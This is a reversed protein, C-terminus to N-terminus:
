KKVEPVLIAIIGALGAGVLSISQVMGPDVNLHLLLFLAGLGSWSSPEKFRNALSSLTDM